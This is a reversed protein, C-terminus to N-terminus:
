PFRTRISLDRAMSSEHVSDTINRYYWDQIELPLQTKKVNKIRMNEWYFKLFFRFLFLQLHTFSLESKKYKKKVQVCKQCVTGMERNIIMGQSKYYTTQTEKCIQSKSGTGYEIEM